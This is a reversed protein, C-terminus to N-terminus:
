ARRSRRSSRAIKARTRASDFPFKPSVRRCSEFSDGLEITIYRAEGQGLDPWDLAYDGDSGPTPLKPPAGQTPERTGCGLSGIAFTAVVISVSVRAFVLFGPMKTGGKRAHDDIM